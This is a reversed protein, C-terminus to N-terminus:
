FVWAAQTAIFMVSTHLLGFDDGHAYAGQVKLIVTALPRFNLGANIAKIDGLIGPVLPRYDEYYAFPMVNWLHAFRYGVLLYVGLDPGNGIPAGALTLPHHGATYAKHRHIAEGQLHLGGHDWQGDVAYAREDFVEPATTTSTTAGTARGLYGSAGLKLTGAWPAEFELRGGIAPRRDTDAVIETESRGNSITAHYGLKYDGVPASGFADLGTQHEPFLQEGVIYPRYTGIIVPSGHDTNWIGYPTLWHGARITLHPTLDYEVYAREIAITGWQTTRGFDTADSASTVVTTGDPNTSGNPVYNFSIEALSRWRPTLNKAIYVNLSTLAFTTSDHAYPTQHTFHTNSWTFDAFGYVSLKDDFGGDGAPDLGLATLDLDDAARAPAPAPAGPPAPVPAPVPDDVPSPLPAPAAAALRTAAVGTLTVLFVTRHM